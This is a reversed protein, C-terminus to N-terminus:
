YKVPRNKNFVSYRLSQCLVFSTYLVLSTNPHQFAYTRSDACNTLETLTALPFADKHWFACGYLTRQRQFSARSSAMLLSSRAAAVGRCFDETVLSSRATLRRRVLLVRRRPAAARPRRPQRPSRRRLAPLADLRRHRVRVRDDLRGAALDGARARVAARLHVDVVHAPLVLRRAHGRRARLQPAPQLGDFHGDRCTTFRLTTRRVEDMRAANFDLREMPQAAALFAQEPSTACGTSRTSRARTRPRAARTPGSCCGSSCRRSSGCRRGCSRRRRPRCSAAVAARSGRGRGCSTSRACRARRARSM